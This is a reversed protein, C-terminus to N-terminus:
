RVYRQLLTRYMEHVARAYTWPSIVPVRGGTMNHFFDDGALVMGAVTGVGEDGYQDEFAKAPSSGPNTDWREGRFMLPPREDPKGKEPVPFAIGPPTGPQQLLALRSRLLQNQLWMNDLRLKNAALTQATEVQSVASLKEQPTMGTGVARGIDQGAQAIGAALPDGGVSVAPSISPAGLAYLPHIGAKKADAVRWQISSQAFERQLAANRAAQEEQSSRGLWGGLLSAGASILSGLM